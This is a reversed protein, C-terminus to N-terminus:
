RLARGVRFGIVDRRTEAFEWYRIASRVRAVADDWAGGRLMRLRCDGPKLWASGDSPAGTYDPHGCDEVWEWVNGSMDFLGFGNAPFSGVPATRAGGQQGGCRGCNARGQGAEAGWYYPSDTGARAAYEWESESLLRYTRGTKQSLWGVYEQADRWNVNIAPRNGRGWGEAGPTHSCGGARRCADWEAFTVEYRGVAFPRGITVQHRPGEDKWRGPEDPPSGMMYSGEQVVVMEPCDTCDRFVEGHRPLRLAAVVAANGGARAARAATRGNPGELWPDAGANRLLAVIEPSGRSVAIFLATTGDPARVDPDAPGALLLETVPGQGENVAHMLATWGRDDRGEVDAGAALLANLVEIDGAKAARHLVDGSVVAARRSGPEPAAPPASPPTAGRRAAIRRMERLADPTLTEAAPLGVDRVFTRYARASRPGWKGDAPGPAYGLAALLAQAERVAHPPPPPSPPPDPSSSPTAAPPSPSRSASTTVAPSPSASASSAAVAEPADGTDSSDAAASPEPRWSAAREQAAAIQQATMKTSLADREHLAAVGGRSAALNLWKHAEVYDQLVGLGQVYLRGLALMSRRDGEAAGARWQTLAEDPRGADWARQGAEFDAGASQVVLLAAVLLATRIASRAMSRLITSTKICRLNVSWSHRRPAVDHGRRPEVGPSAM